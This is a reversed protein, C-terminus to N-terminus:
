RNGVRVREWSCSNWCIDSKVAGLVSVNPGSLKYENSDDGMVSSTGFSGGLGGECVRLGWSGGLPTFCPSVLGWSGGLPTLRPSVTKPFTDENSWGRGGTGVLLGLAFTTEVSLPM